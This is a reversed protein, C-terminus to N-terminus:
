ASTLETRLYHIRDEPEDDPIAMFADTIGTDARILCFIRSKKQRTFDPLASIVKIAATKRQVESAGSSEAALATAIGELSLWLRMIMAPNAAMVTVTRDCVSRLHLRATLSLEFASGLPRLRPRLRFPTMWIRTVPPLAAGRLVPDLPFDDDEPVLDDPWDPSTPRVPGQGPLFVREGTAVGGDVLDAMEQYLPFGKNRWPRIKPNIQTSQSKTCNFLIFPNRVLLYADWVDDSVVIQKLEENWDWGSKGRLMKVLM